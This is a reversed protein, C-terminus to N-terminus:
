VKRLSTNQGEDLGGGRINSPIKVIISKHINHHRPFVCAVSRITNHIRKPSRNRRSPRTTDKVHVKMKFIHVERVGVEIFGPHNKGGFAFFRAINAASEDASRSFGAGNGKRICTGFVDRRQGSDWQILYGRVSYVKTLM